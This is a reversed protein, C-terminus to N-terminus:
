TLAAAAEVDQLEAIVVAESDSQQHLEAERSLRRQEELFREDEEERHYFTDHEMRAEKRQWWGTPRASTTTTDYLSTGFVTATTTGNRSSVQSAIMIELDVYLVKVEVM